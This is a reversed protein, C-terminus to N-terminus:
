FLRHVTCHVCCLLNLFDTQTQWHTLTDTRRATANRSRNESFNVCVYSGVFPLFLENPPWYRVVRERIKGGFGWKIGVPALVWAFILYYYIEAKFTCLDGFNESRKLFRPRPVRHHIDSQLGSTSICGKRAHAICKAIIILVARENPCIGREVSRM